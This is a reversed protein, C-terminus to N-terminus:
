KALKMLSAKKRSARNFSIANVKAAKDAAKQFASIATKAADKEGKKLLDEAKRYLAKVNTKIKANHATRKKTKRLEKIASPKNPM